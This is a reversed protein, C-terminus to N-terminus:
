HQPKTQERMSKVVPISNTAQVGCDYAECIFRQDQILDGVKMCTFKFPKDLIVNTPANYIVISKYIQRDEDQEQGTWTEYWYTTGYIDCFTANGDVRTPIVDYRIPHDNNAVSLLGPRPEGWLYSYATNYIKGNVVRLYPGPQIWNTVIVTKYQPSDQGLARLAMALILGAWLLKM